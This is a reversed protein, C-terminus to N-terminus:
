QFGGRRGTRSISMRTAIVQRCGSVSSRSDRCRSALRSSSSSIRAKLASSRSATRSGPFTGAPSSNQRTRVVVAALLREQPAQPPVQVPVLGGAMGPVGSGRGAFGALRAAPEWRQGYAPWVRSCQRGQAPRRSCPVAPSPQPPAGSAARQRGRGPLRLCAAGPYGPGGAFAAPRPTGARGAHAAPHPLQGGAPAVEGGRAQGPPSIALEPPWILGM